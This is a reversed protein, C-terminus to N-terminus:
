NKKRDFCHTPQGLEYSLYNSVDTFFNTKNIRMKAFYEELYPKYTNVKNAIEIELFSIRPCSSKCLNMFNLTLEDIEKEYIPIDKIPGYFHIFREGTWLSFLM